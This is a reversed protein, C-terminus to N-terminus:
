EKVFPKVQKNANSTIILHYSGKALHHIPISLTVDDYVYSGIVKGTLDVLEVKCESFEKLKTITLQEKAPNPYVAFDSMATDQIGAVGRVNIKGFYTQHNQKTGVVDLVMGRNQAPITITSQGSVISGKAIFNSNASLSIVAGETVSSFLEAIDQYPDIETIHQVTLEQTAKNRFDVSPDGFFVWTQMVQNGESGYQELMSMQANYFLGGLTTKQNDTYAQTNIATMEDQTQMPPAWAMLISSACTAIAGMPSNAKRSKLWTEALCNAGVFTGNNCAVSVVFPYMGENSASNVQTSGFNGSIFTNFDGHGAYNFLGVGENLAELISASVPDGSADGQNRSGDYFEFVKTYGFALLENRLGRLHQWDAEGDDGYGAGEGSALGIAKTMWNGAKPKTEYEIIRKVMVEIDPEIGSLRGVFLEPYLDDGTLQGYYSDSYLEEGSSSGYSYAPIKDADGVLLLYKLNPHNGYYAAVYDKLAQTTAGTVNASVLDTKIGKKNKWEVLPRVENIFSDHALVLMEGEEEVVNYKDQGNLNAFLKSYSKLDSSKTTIAGLENIGKKDSDCIIKFTISSYVRLVKTIPNYQFPAAQVVQGRVTRAIFPNLGTLPKSPYFENKTYIAGFEYPITAPNVNRKLNGKSPLVLVNPYDVYTSATIEISIAGNAPLVFSEGFVPLMPSGKELSLIKHSKSFDIYERGNLITYQLTKPLLNFEVETETEGTKVLSFNKQSLIFFVTLLFSTLITTKM